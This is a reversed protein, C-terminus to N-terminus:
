EGLVWELMVKMGHLSKLAILEKTGNPDDARLDHDLVDDIMRNVLNLKDKVKFESRM